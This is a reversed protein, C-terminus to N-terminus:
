GVVRRFATPQGYLYAIRAIAEALPESAVSMTHGNAHIIRTADQLIAVHGRWFVLDGRRINELHSGADIDDGLREQMDTDRLFPRGAMALSLQVIGSCDIGFGSTGGWLYPTELLREAASVYDQAVEGDASLHGLIVAGGTSLIGYQTGRKETTGAVDIRSGMSLPHLRPSRLDADSYVFTRPAKIVHTVPARGADLESEAIYGVYGDTMGQVWAYGDARDFVTVDQGFLFQTDISSNKSPKRCVDAVPVAVHAIEGTVFRAAEVKGELRADALDVRYAHLRADLTSM